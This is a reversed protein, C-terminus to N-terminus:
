SNADRVRLARKATNQCELLVRRLAGPLEGEPQESALLGETRSVAEETEPYLGRILRNAMEIPHEDWIKPVRDVFEGTFTERVEAARPANFAALLSDMEANSWRGPEVALDFAARKAAPTPFSHRAGLLEAQGTLTDDRTGEAALEEEEVAGHAALGRLVSWRIDPDLRLGEVGGGLIARLHEAGAPAAALARIASRAVTLQADSGPEQAHLLDWLREALGALVEDQAGKPLYHRAAFVANGLAQAMVTPNTERPGHTLAAEVYDRVPLEGDRTMDWLATWIVARSLENSLESLRELVTRLSTDDFRVKAYTHDGDNLLVLAPQPLGAAEAIVTEEGPRVDVDFTRSPALQADYLTADIRHPRKISGAIRLNDIRGDTVAIEPRLTDPGSTKLWADSWADVDRDTHHRLADLLDDFTATAFAHAQFYDRAGAYFNDRGVFHVLQKLVAAGKAYTIVDFNQRAADVDPIEAKIPHTTPLQDQLYAWNKRQAAFNTWAETYATAHASSDASMFEAFSEKLWLDDWWHPTVLDGFWMHSMEHLITNTRGAHQARTAQSRFLYNETFTVLGPNEMAGLNYEPVFISDYKGWPYPYGFHEDFYDLSQATIELIEDDLYDAMSTRALATLEITREPDNPARWTRHKAIYPGAAVATLYTSLLPTPQFRVTQTDAASDHAVAPQEAPPQNSLVTWEGPATVTFEFPAKLDPQDFCPFIRRADSPELHSYLYTNGDATDTFRHLGQGTRSYLSRGEVSVTIRTDTPLGTLHVRSGDFDVPQEEGDISVATVDEGLYDLFTEAERTTLDVETRAIFTAADSPAHTVDLHVRYAHLTLAATRATAEQFTLTDAM